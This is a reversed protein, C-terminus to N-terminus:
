ETQIIIEEGFDMNLFEQTQQESLSLVLLLEQSAGSLQIRLTKYNKFDDLSLNKIEPM